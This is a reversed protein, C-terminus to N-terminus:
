AAHHSQFEKLPAAPIGLGVLLNHITNWHVREWFRPSSNSNHPALLVQDLSHLPSDEPLPEDEFVDLAAGRLRHDKLAAVLAQQDVVPGRATNILVAEPKCLALREANILHLSTPNLTCNVSIFDSKALLDELGMMAVGFELLFDPRIDVIDNGLLRMGFGRARRLVAQGVNGVGIVGLTCESLTKGNIKNWRGAKMEADLWPIQRAFALMYGIVSESVPVTFANPTNGVMVGLENAATQDISDIGTGWKSIVKLRPTCAEIVRRTYRDDGCITGDFKGAFALLDEESLRENVDAIILDLNFSELVPQFRNMEPLIYPASVLVTKM